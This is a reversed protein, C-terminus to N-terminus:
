DVYVKKTNGCDCMWWETHGHSDVVNYRHRHASPLQDNVKKVPRPHYRRPKRSCDCVKGGYIGTNHCWGCIM